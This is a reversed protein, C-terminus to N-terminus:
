LIMFSHSHTNASFYLPWLEIADPHVLYKQQSVLLSPLKNTSDCSIIRSILKLMVYKSIFLKDFNNESQNVLNVFMLMVDILSIESLVFTAHLYLKKLLQMQCYYFIIFLEHFYSTDDIMIKENQNSNLIVFLLM